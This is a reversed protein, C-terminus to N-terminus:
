ELSCGAVPRAVLRWGRLDGHRGKQESIKRAFSDTSRTRRPREFMAGWIAVAETERRLGARNNTVKNTPWWTVWEDPRGLTACWECLTEPYGFFARRPWARLVEIVSVDDDHEYRGTGYPPDSILVDAAVPLYDRCDGLFLTVGKACFAGSSRGSGEREMGTEVSPTIQVPAICGHAAAFTGEATSEVTM